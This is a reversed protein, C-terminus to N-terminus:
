LLLAGGAAVLIVGLACEVGRRKAELWRAPGPRSLMIAAFTYWGADIVLAVGAVGFREAVTTEPPLMTSLIAVFFLIIKPNMFAFLFGERAGRGSDNDNSEVSEKDSPWLASGGLWLLFLAGALEISSVLTPVTELIASFGLVALLAYVGVGVGHALACRIGQGRGGQVTNKVVVALSAGPTAAGAFCVGAIAFWEAIEM